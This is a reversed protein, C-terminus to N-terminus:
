DGDKQGKVRARRRLELAVLLAVVLLLLLWLLWFSVNVSGQGILLPMQTAVPVENSVSVRSTVALMAGNTVDRKAAMTSTQYAIAIQVALEWPPMAGAM